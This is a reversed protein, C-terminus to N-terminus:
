KARHRKNFYYAQQTKEKEQQTRFRNLDPWRPELVDLACPLLNRINRGFLLQAPTYGSKLPSSRYELLGLELSKNKNLIQKATSVAKEALGNAQHHEPSSTRVEMKIRAAWEVFEKSILQPGC